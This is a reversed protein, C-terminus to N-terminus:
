AQLGQEDPKAPQLTRNKVVATGALRDYILDRKRAVQIILLVTWIFGIVGACIFLQFFRDTFMADASGDTSARQYAFLALAPVFGIIMALHRAIVRLIPVEPCGPNAIDIIKIRLIRAGVTRGTKWIMWVLYALFAAIFIWDLSFGDIPNGAQDLMYGQTVTKTGSKERTVRGVTLTIGTTAGFLSIRCVQAFNSDHPPPPNLSTPVTEAIQCSNFFLGSHMQVTGATMAFLVVALVQFPLAVVIWDILTGTWRRWFGARPLDAIAEGELHPSDTDM